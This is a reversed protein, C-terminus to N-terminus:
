RGMAELLGGFALPVLGVALALCRARPGRAADLTAALPLALPLALGILLAALPLGLAPQTSGVQHLLKLTPLTLALFGATAAALVFAAGRAGEAGDQLRGAAAFALAAAVTPWAFAHSAGAIGFHAAGALAAWGVLAGAALGTRTRPGRRWAAVSALAFGLAVLGVLLWTSSEGNGQAPGGRIPVLAALGRLGLGAAALLAAGLLAVLPLALLGLTAGAISLRRARVGAALAGLVALWALALVAADWRADYHVFLNGPLTFFTARGREAALAGLDAEGLHRALALMTEGHHQLARRDLNTPTDAPQHYATGGGVWAFNLGPLGARRFLTFDTDNPMREYVAPGLSSGLPRPACAAFAAIWARDDRGTEFLIAPGRNGRGEFNIACALGALADPSQVHARAGLLGAEEGDTLLFELANRRAPEARLARLCELVAAVAAGADGAGPAGARSDYHAVFLVRPAGAERAPVRALLNVGQHVRGGSALTWPRSEWAVGLRELEAELFARVEAQRPSGLPHPAAAIEELAPWARATSFREPPADAGRPAPSGPDLLCTLAFAALASCALARM